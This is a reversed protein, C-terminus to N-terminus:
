DDSDPAATFKKIPFPKGPKQKDWAAQSLVAPDARDVSSINIRNSAQALRRSRGQLSAVSKNMEDLPVRNEIHDYRKMDAEKNFCATLPLATRDFRTMPPLGLVLEITRAFSNHNYMESVVAGRRTYPSICFAVTRHGDVHDLGFQSDDEIVLILTDKWFKSHSIGEVIRGLALDNDAVMARPTPFGSRTGVTHDNPLLIMSFAPMDGNKEFKALDDLYQAARWQDSVTTPFGIYNPHLLPQLAANETHASIKFRTGGSKYDEWLASWTAKGDGSTDEIKPKNVFEGYVRVSLGKKRAATWLFGKPSYALPDGGDYPYSRTHADYNQEIYANAVASAVWQHGDASNTGSTYTNDLLVFQRALAHENPTVDEGFLTLSKDGNGQPLDGLDLDYTHNEKIIYVVHKFVSADGVQVPVPVPSKISPGEPGLSRNNGRVKANLDGLSALSKLPIFQVTGVSSHVGFGKSASREWRAGIGKSSAVVLSGKSQAVAVPFWGAPVASTVKLSSADVAKVCNTGGCAAYLTDGSDSFACGTPIQGYGDEGLSVSEPRKGPTRLDFRRLSDENSSAVFLYNGDGSLAMGTPQEVGSLSTSTLSRTDVVTISGGSSADTEADTRITTGASPASIEGGSPAQGRNAVYLRSGDKSLLVHYPCLGVPITSKITEAKLDIVAVANRIGLAAYLKEGDTSVAIGTVQPDAARRAGTPLGTLEDLHIKKGPAMEGASVTFRNINGGAGSTYITSSDPAWAIGLPGPQVPLKRVFTGDIRFLQVSNTCLVAVFQGDPSIALDKPRGGEIKQLVGVPSVTQNTTVVFSGDSQLGPTQRDDARRGMASTGIAIVEVLLFLEIARLMLGRKNMM